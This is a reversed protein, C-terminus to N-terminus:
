AAWQFVDIGGRSGQFGFSARSMISLNAGNQILFSLDEVNELGVAVHAATGDYGSDHDPCYGYYGYDYYYGDGGFGNYGWHTKNIDYPTLDADIPHQFFSM